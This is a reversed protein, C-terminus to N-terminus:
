CSDKLLEQVREGYKTSAARERITNLLECGQADKGLMALAQARVLSLGIIENSGVANPTLREAEALAKTATADEASERLLAPLRATIDVVATTQPAPVNSTSSKVAPPAIRPPTTSTQTGGAPQQALPEQVVALPAGVAAPPTAAATDPKATGESKPLLNFAAVVAATLAAVGGALPVMSRKKPAPAPVSVPAVSAATAPIPAAAAPPASADVRTPPPASIVATAGDLAGIMQTAGAPAQKPMREVAQYLAVGFKAASDYRAERKRQLAKGMVDQVEQSWSTDPKTASLTKPDDTLRM